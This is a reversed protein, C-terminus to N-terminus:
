KRLATLSKIVLIAISVKVNIQTGIFSLSIRSLGSILAFIVFNSAGKSIEQNSIADILGPVLSITKIDFFTVISSAITAYFIYKFGNGYKIISITNSNNIKKKFNM